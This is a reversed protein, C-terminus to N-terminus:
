TLQYRQVQLTSNNHIIKEAQSRSLLGAQAGYSSVVSAANATGLKLGYEIDGKNIYGAVFASGFSDGAGLTDVITQPYIDFAYLTKGDYVQSGKKGDTVIVVRPGYSKLTTIIKSVDVMWPQFKIAHTPCVALCRGCKVCRQSEHITVKKDATQSFIEQSCVRVCDGCGTCKQSDIIQFQPQQGTFQAAEEKNMILVETCALLARLKRPGAAIQRSGPNWALQINNKKLIAPLIELFNLARGTIGSLYLWKTQIAKRWNVKEASLSNNAGRYVLITREGEFSNLVVSLGTNNTADEILLSTDVDEQKLTHVVEQGISDKGLSGITAVRLGLRAFSVAANCGGGGQTFAVEKVDLKSGYNFCLLAQQSSADRITIVKSLDARTFIDRMISGITVVDWSTSNQNNNKRKPM